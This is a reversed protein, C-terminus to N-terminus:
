NQYHLIQALIVQLQPPLQGSWLALGIPIVIWARAPFVVASFVLRLLTNDVVNGYPVVEPETLATLVSFDEFFREFM